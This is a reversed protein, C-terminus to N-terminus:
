ESKKKRGKKVPEVVPTEIEEKTEAPGSLDKSGESTLVDLANDSKELIENVKADVIEQFAQKAESPEKYTVSNDSHSFVSDQDIIKVYEDYSTVTVAGLQKDFSNVYTIDEFKKPEFVLEITDDNLEVSEIESIKETLEVLSESSKKTVETLDKLSKALSEDTKKLDNLIEEVANDVILDRVNVEMEQGNEWYEPYSKFKFKGTVGQGELVVLNADNSHKKNIEIYCRIKM